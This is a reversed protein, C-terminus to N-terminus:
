RSTEQIHALTELLAQQIGPEQSSHGAGEVIHLQAAPWADALLQAQELPCVLDHHGHLIFGPVPALRGADELIQNERLFGRHCFYHNEIRAVALARAAFSSMVDPNPRVTSLGAEWAAWRQAWIDAEVDPRALRERYAALVGPMSTDALGEVFTRWQDPYLRAAGEPSYLWALDRQRCLFIGRVVLGLCREPFREAYLLALTSGWSGGCVWWREVGLHRRLAELDELLADTHNHDLGTAPTSRGAGRQDYFIARWHQPDFFRRMAPHIGSGPGGHLVVVPLGADAGCTEVYLEHGDSVPLWGSKVRPVPFLEM